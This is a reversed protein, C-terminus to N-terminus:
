IEHIILKDGRDVSSYDPENPIKAQYNKGIRIRAEPPVEPSKKRSKKRSKKIEKVKKGMTYTRKAFRPPGFLGGGLNYLKDAFTYYEALKKLETVVKHNM